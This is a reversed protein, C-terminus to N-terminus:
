KTPERWSFLHKMQEESLLKPRNMQDWIALMERYRSLLPVRSNLRSQDVVHIYTGKKVLFELYGLYDCEHNNDFGPFRSLWPDHQKMEESSSDQLAEFMSLIDMITRADEEPFESDDIFKYLSDYHTRYGASVITKCLEYHKSDGPYLAALISYQNWLILREKITLEM